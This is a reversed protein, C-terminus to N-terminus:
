AAVGAIRAMRELHERYLKHEPRTRQRELKESMSRSIYVREAPTGKAAVIAAVDLPSPPDNM